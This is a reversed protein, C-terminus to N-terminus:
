FQQWNNFECAMRAIRETQVAGNQGSSLTVHDIAVYGDIQGKHRWRLEIAKQRATDEDTAVYMDGLSGCSYTVIYLDGM